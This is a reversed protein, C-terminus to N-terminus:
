HKKLIHMMKGIFRVYNRFLVKFNNRKAYFRKGVEFYRTFYEIEFPDRYGEEIIEKLESDMVRKLEPFSDKYIKRFVPTDAVFFRYMDYIIIGMKNSNCVFRFTLPDSVHMLRKIFYTDGHFRLHRFDKCMEMTEVMFKYDIKKVIGTILSSMIVISCYGDLALYRAINYGDEEYGTIAFCYTMPTKKLSLGYKMDDEKQRAIRRIEVELRKKESKLRKQEQKQINMNKIIEEDLVAYYNTTM